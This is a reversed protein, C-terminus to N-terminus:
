FYYKVMLALSGTQFSIMKRIEERSSIENLVIQDNTGYNTYYREDYNNTKIYSLRLYMRYNLELALRDIVPIELKIGTKLKVSVSQREDRTFYYNSSNTNRYYENKFQSIDVGIGWIPTLKGLKVDIGDQWKIYSLGIGISNKENDRTTPNADSEQYVPALVTDGNVYTTDWGTLVYDIYEIETNYEPYTSLNIDFGIEYRKNLDGYILNGTGNKLILINSSLYRHYQNSQQTLLPAILVLFILVSKSHSKM